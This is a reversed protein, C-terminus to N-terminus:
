TGVPPLLLYTFLLLYLHLLHCNLWQTTNAHVASVPAKRVPSVVGFPHIYGWFIHPSRQTTY